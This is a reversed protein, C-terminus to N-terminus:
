DICTNYKNYVLMIFNAQDIVVMSLVDDQVNKFFWTWAIMAFNHKTRGKM